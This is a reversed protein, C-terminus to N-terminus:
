FDREHLLTYTFTNGFAAAGKECVSLFYNFQLPDCLVQCGASWRDVNVSENFRSARHLNLGFIGTDERGSAYDIVGDRNYDRIVTLPTAQELAKYGKHMGIRYASRYQGEKLVATGLTNMPNGLWYLGPDTTAPFAMYIWRGHSMYFVTVWDDFRHPVMSRTRIGVLNLDFGGPNAYIRHNKESMVRLVDDLEPRFDAM